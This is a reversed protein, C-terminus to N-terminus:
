TANESELSAEGAECGTGKGRWTTPQWMAPAGPQHEHNITLWSSPYKPGNKGEPLNVTQGQFNGM